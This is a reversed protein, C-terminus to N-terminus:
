SLEAVLARGLLELERKIQARPTGQERRRHRILDAAAPALLTDALGAAARPSAGLEDLLSGV